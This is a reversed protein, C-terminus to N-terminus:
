RGCRALHRVLALAADQNAANEVRGAVDWQLLDQGLGQILEMREREEPSLVEPACGPSKTLTAQLENLERKNWATLITRAYRESATLPQTSTM